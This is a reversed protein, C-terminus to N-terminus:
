EDDNSDNSDNNDNSDSGSGAQKKLGAAIRRTSEPLPPTDDDPREYAHREGSALGVRIRNIGTGGAAVILRPGLNDLAKLLPAAEDADTRIRNLIAKIQARIQRNVNDGRADLEELLASALAVNNEHAARHAFQIFMPVGVIHLRYLWALRVTSDEVPDPDFRSRVFVAERSWLEATSAGAEILAGAQKLLDDIQNQYRARINRTREELVERKLHQDLKGIEADEDAKLKKIQAELKEAEQVKLKLERMELFHPAPAVPLDLADLEDAAHAQKYREELTPAKGDANGNGM